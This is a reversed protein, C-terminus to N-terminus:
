AMTMPDIDIKLSLNHPSKYYKQFNEVLSHLQGVNNSKLLLTWTFKNARKEIVAPRPGLLEVENFRKDQFNKIMQQILNSQEIVVNQKSSSMYFAVMRSYPPFDLQDRILLEEKYFGEHDYNKIFEFIRNEPALTEIVVEGRKESRGPRGATQTVLQFVKENSRFDPFNLQSDVGLLVVFNVGPFDHGKSLMQTGVLIDIQRNQFRELVDKLSTFNKIADRDFREVRAEPIKKSLVELLRETGFGKQLLKMNGCEPCSEPYAQKFECFQCKLVKQNKFYKLSSSCNLCHFEHGCSRCQVFSAFGLRNVFVLAQENNKVRNQLEGISEPTFPWTDSDDKTQIQRSDQIIIEPMQLDKPRSKLQLHGETQFFSKLTEITPTASGLVIPCRKESALKIAVDRAHYPCRDEQKFSGDHEEDVVILGLEKFPLFISSRVGILIFPENIEKVASWVGHKESNSMSSHYTLIKGKLHQQFINLFQPTLNIEPILFLCSRGEALMEQFLKLYVTTKGSGTVGHLLFKAFKDQKKLVEEFAIKQEPTLQYGLDNGKGIIPEFARPRKLPKPQVDFIHQGIPYHYYNSVWELFSLYDSGLPQFGELDGAIDRLGEISEGDTSELVCGKEMRKGLPVKVLDGRNYENETRYTLISQNFPTNVAVKYYKM